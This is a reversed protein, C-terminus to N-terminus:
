AQLIDKTVVPEIVSHCAPCNTAAASPQRASAAEVQQWARARNNIWDLLENSCAPCNM